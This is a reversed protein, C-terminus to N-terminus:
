GRAAPAAPTPASTSPGNLLPYTGAARELWALGRVIEAGHERQAQALVAARLDPTYVHEPGKAYRAMLPSTVLRHADEPGLPAGLHTAAQMLTPAPQSLFTEFDLTLTAPGHAAALSATECAWAMAIREGESMGALAFAPGGLRANLRALRSPALAIAEARNGDAALITALYTPASTTLLIARTAPRALIAPALKSAFSTAKLLATQAPHWTRSWLTLCAELRAAHEPPTRWAEPVARYEALTRLAAPERVSFLAPLEGLLRSILTSGVHGIHFIAHLPRPPPLAELVQAFPVWQTKVHTGLMRGDLFSAARYQDEGLHAFLLRDAPEDISHPLWAPSQALNTALSM